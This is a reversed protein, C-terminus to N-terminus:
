LDIIDKPKRNSNFFSNKINLSVQPRDGAKWGHLELIKVNAHLAASPNNETDQAINKINRVAFEPTAEQKILALEIAEKIGPKELNESSIASAVKYNDTGYAKLAARVGNKGNKLYETVFDRQKGTLKKRKIKPADEM